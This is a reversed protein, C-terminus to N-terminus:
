IKLREIKWVIGSSDHSSVFTVKNQEEKKVCTGRLSACLAGCVYYETIVALLNTLKDVSGGPESSM